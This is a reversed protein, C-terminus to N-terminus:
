VFVARTAKPDAFVQKIGDVGFRKQAIAGVSYIKSFDAPMEMPIAYSANRTLMRTMTQDFYSCADKEIPCFAFKLEPDVFLFQIGLHEIDGDPHESRGWSSEPEPFELEDIHDM